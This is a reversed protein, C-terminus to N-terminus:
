RRKRSARSASVTVENRFVWRQQLQYNVFFLALDCAIKAKWEEIGFRSHAVYVGITSLTLIGAALVAFRPLSERRRPRPADDVDLSFVLRHNIAFNLSLSVCRAIVSSVLIRLFGAGAMPKRLLWFLLNALLQDVATCSLSAGAFRLFRKRRLSGLAASEDSSEQLKKAARRRSVVRAGAVKVRVRSLARRRRGPQQSNRKAM